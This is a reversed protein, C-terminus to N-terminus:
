VHCGFLRRIQKWMRRHLSPQLSRLFEVCVDRAEKSEEVPIDDILIPRGWSAHSFVGTSGGHTGSGDAGINQVQSSGPYLTLLGNLFAAAHWRIAWSDNRGSVQDKLMQTYPYSNDMDFARQQGSEYLRALLKSGDPEFVQWGRDWTAWGWCDAGRLFFTEPLPRKVPYSYAHISAVEPVNRYKELADNMYRLFHKSPIVDDELVIVRGYRVILETVGAIISRALGLNTDREVVALSRFGRIGRILTRVAAVDENAIEDKAADSFVFLDSHSAEPNTRLGEIVQHTHLPRKYVFLAIPALM